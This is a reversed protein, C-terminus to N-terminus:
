ILRSFKMLERLLLSSNLLTERSAWTLQAFNMAIAYKEVGWIKTKWFMKSKKGDTYSIELTVGNFKYRHQFFAFERERFFFFYFIQMKFSGNAPCPIWRFRSFGLWEQKIAAVPLPSSWRPSPIGKKNGSNNKSDHFPRSTTKAHFRSIIQVLSRVQKQARQVKSFLPKSEGRM